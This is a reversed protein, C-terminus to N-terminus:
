KKGYKHALTARRKEHPVRDLRRLDDRLDRSVVIGEVRSVKAFAERGITFQGSKASRAKNGSANNKAM